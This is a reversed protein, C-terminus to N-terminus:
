ECGRRAVGVCASCDLTTLKHWMAEWFAIVKRARAAMQSGPSDSVPVPVPVPVPVLRWPTSSRKRLPVVSCRALACLRTLQAAPWGAAPALSPEQLAAPATWGRCVAAADPPTCHAELAASSPSFPLTRSLTSGLVVDGELLLPKELPTIAATVDEPASSRRQGSDPRSRM